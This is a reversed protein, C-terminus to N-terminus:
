KFKKRREYHQFYYKCECNIPIFCLSIGSSACFCYCFLFVCQFYFFTKKWLFIFRLLISRNVLTNIENISTKPDKYPFRGLFTYFYFCCHWKWHSFCCCCWLQLSFSFLSFFNFSFLHSRVFIFSITCMSITQAGNYVNTQFEVTYITCKGWWFICLLNYYYFYVCISNFSNSLVYDHNIKFLIKENANKWWRKRKRKTARM